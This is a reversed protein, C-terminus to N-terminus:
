YHNQRNHVATRDKNTRQHQSLKGKDVRQKKGKSQSPTFHTQSIFIFQVAPAYLKQSNRFSLVSLFFISVICVFIRLCHSQLICVSYLDTNGRLQAPARGRLLQFARACVFNNDRLQFNEIKMTFIRIVYM